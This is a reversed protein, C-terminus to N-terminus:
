LGVAKGSAFFLRSYIEVQSFRSPRVLNSSWQRPWYKRSSFPQHPCVTYWRCSNCNLSFPSKPNRKGKSGQSSNKRKENCAAARAVLIEGREQQLKNMCEWGSDNMLVSYVGASNSEDRTQGDGSASAPCLASHNVLGALWTLTLRGSSGLMVTLQRAKCRSPLFEGQRNATSCEDPFAPRRHHRWQERTLSGDMWGDM